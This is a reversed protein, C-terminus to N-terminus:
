ELNRSREISEDLVYNVPADYWMAQPVGGVKGPVYRCKLIYDLAALDLREYGSSRKLEAKQPTGDAGVLVRVLVRGQEGMRRSLPPYSARPNQLYAAETSPLQVTPPAPPAPPAAAAVADTIPAPPHPTPVGSPANPAPTPETIAMPQPAPPPAPVKKAVQKVPAVKPQPAPPPPEAKLAPPAMMEALMQVPVVVEVARQLLGAHLAWLAAVHFLVVGCAVLTNHSIRPVQQTALVDYGSQASGRRSVTATM